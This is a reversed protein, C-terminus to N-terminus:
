SKTLSPDLSPSPMKDDLNPTICLWGIPPIALCLYQRDLWVKNEPLFADGHKAIATKPVLTRQM